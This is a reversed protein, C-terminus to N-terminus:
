ASRRKNPNSTTFASAREPKLWYIESKKEKVGYNSDPRKLIVTIKKTSAM